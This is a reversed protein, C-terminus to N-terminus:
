DCPVETTECIVLEVVNREGNLTAYPRHRTVSHDPHVVVVEVTSHMSALSSVDAFRVPQRATM